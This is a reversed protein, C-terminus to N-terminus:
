KTELKNIAGECLDSLQKWFELSNERKGTLIRVENGSDREVLLDLGGAYNEITVPHKKIQNTKIDLNRKLM